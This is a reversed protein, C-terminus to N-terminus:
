GEVTPPSLNIRLKERENMARNSESKFKRVGSDSMTRIGQALLRHTNRIPQAPYCRRYYRYAASLANQDIWWNVSGFTRKAYNTYVDFFLKGRADGPVYVAAATVKAWPYLARGYVNYSMSLADGDFISDMDSQMETSFVIDIDFIFTSCKFRSRVEQALFFRITATLPRLELQTAAQVIKVRSRHKDSVLLDLTAKIDRLNNEDPSDSVLAIIVYSDPYLNLASEIATLGFRDFYTKDCSFIFAGGRIQTLVELDEMNAWSFLERDNSCPELLNPISFADQYTRSGLMFSAHLNIKPFANGRLARSASSYDERLFHITAEMHSKLGTSAAPILNSIKLIRDLTSILSTKPSYVDDFGHVWYDSRHIRYWLFHALIEDILPGNTTANIQGVRMDLLFSECFEDIKTIIKQTTKESMSDRFWRPSNQDSPQKLRRMMDLKFDALSM